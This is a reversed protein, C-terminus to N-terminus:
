QIGLVQALSGVLNTRRESEFSLCPLIFSKLPTCKLKMYLGYICLDSCNILLTSSTKMVQTYVRSRRLIGDITTAV